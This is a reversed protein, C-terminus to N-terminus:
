TFSKDFVTLPHDLGIKNASSVLIKKKERPMNAGLHAKAEKENM